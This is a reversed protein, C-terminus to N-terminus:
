LGIIPRCIGTRFDYVKPWPCRSKDPVRAISAPPIFPKGDVGRFGWPGSPEDLEQTDAPMTLALLLALLLLLFRVM